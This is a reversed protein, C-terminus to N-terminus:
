LTVFKYCVRGNHGRPFRAFSLNIECLVLYPVTSRDGRIHAVVRVSRRVTRSREDRARDSHVTIAAPYLCM